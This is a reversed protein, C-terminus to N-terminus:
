SEFSDNEKFVDNCSHGVYEKLSCPGKAYDKFSGTKRNRHKMLTDM